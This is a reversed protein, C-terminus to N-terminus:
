VAFRQLVAPEPLIGLGPRDTLTVVGGDLSIADGSLAERLPNESVDVELWEAGTACALHATALLGIGGGLYHPAFQAGAARTAEALPAMCSLGGWKIADPQVWSLFAIARDFEEVGRINEGAALDIPSEAALTAWDAPPANAPLPEELWLPHYRALGRAASLASEVNWQQNADLMLDVDGILGRLNEVARADDDTGFGVKVKFGTWGRDLMPPVLARQTAGTLASAYPRTTGRAGGLAAFLPVDARRAVMDWAAIDLAAICQEFPGPENAQLAIARFGATLDYWMAAPSEFTRGTIAPALLETLILRRHAAGFVPWNAFGEGWGVRGSADTLRVLLCPRRDMAGFANRRPTALPASLHFVEIATPTVTQDV